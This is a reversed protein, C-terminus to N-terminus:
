IEQHILCTRMACNREYPIELVVQARINFPPRDLFVGSRRFWRNDPGHTIDLNPRMDPGCYCDETVILYPFRICNALVQSIEKNSLHQLVQRLLGVDGEPLRDNLINMCKFCTTNNGFRSQNYSILDSVIDAGIYNVAVAGCIRRGVKFDGCGLDVITDIQHKTIFRCIWNVYSTTFEELSGAGSFFEEGEAHGWLKNRYAKTFADAVSLSAYEQRIKSWRRSDRMKLLPAPIIRKVISPRFRVKM